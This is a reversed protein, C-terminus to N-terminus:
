SIGPKSIAPGGDLQRMTIASDLSTVTFDTKRSSAEREDADATEKRLCLDIFWNGSFGGEWAASM